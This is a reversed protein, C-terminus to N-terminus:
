VLSLPEPQPFLVCKLIKQPLVDAIFKSTLGLTSPTALSHAHSDEGVEAEAWRFETPLNMSVPFSKSESLIGQAGFFVGNRLPFKTDDLRIAAVSM